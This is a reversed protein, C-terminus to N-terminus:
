GPLDTIWITASNDRHPDSNQKNTAGKFDKTTKLLRGLTARVDVECQMWIPDLYYKKLITIGLIESNAIDKESM